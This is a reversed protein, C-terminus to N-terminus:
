TYVEIGDVILNKGIRFILEFPHLFIEAAKLLKSFDVEAKKCDQVL